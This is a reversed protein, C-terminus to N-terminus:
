LASPVCNKWSRRVKSGWPFWFLDGVLFCHGDKINGAWGPSECFALFCFYRLWSVGPCSKCAADSLGLHQRSVPKSWFWCLDM